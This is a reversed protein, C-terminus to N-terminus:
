LWGANILEEVRYLRRELLRTPLVRLLQWVGHAYPAAGMVRSELNVTCVEDSIRAGLVAGRNCGACLVRLGHTCVRIAM